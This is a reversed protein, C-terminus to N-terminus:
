MLATMQNENRHDLTDQKAGYALRAVEDVSDAYSAKLLPRWMAQAADTGVNDIYNRMAATVSWRSSATNRNRGNEEM